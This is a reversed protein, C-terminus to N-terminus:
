RVIFNVYLSGSCTSASTCTTNYSTRTNGASYYFSNNPIASTTDGYGNTASTKIFQGATGAIAKVWGSGVTTVITNPATTSTSGDTAVVLGYLKQSATAAPAMAGNTGSSDVIMGLEVATSAPVAEKLTSTFTRVDYINDIKGATVSEGQIDALCLVPATISFTPMSSTPAAVGATNTFAPQGNAGTLCVHGWRNATTLNTNNTTASNTSLTTASVNVRRGGSYAVCAEISVTTNSAWSVKCPGSVGGVVLSPLDYANAGTSPVIGFSLLGLTDPNSIDSWSGNICARISGMTTNYYMAGQNITTSCTGSDTALNSSDLQLNMQTANTTGSGIQTNGGLIIGGGNPNVTFVDTGGNQIAFRGNTSCSTVCQLNILVNPDTTTDQATFQLNKGDALTITAPSSSNNYTDQLNVTIGASCNGFALTGTGSSDKLCDGASGKDQPLVLNWSSSPNSNSAKLTVTNGGASNRFLISGTASNSSGLSLTNSGQIDLTGGMTTAVGSHGITITGTTGTATGVDLVLGGSNSTSGTANGSRITLVSSNTSAGSQDQSQLQTLIGTGTINFHGVQATGPSSGQLQITSAASASYGSCTVATTCIDVVAGGIVAKLSNTDSRYFLGGNKAALGTSPNATSSDLVLLTTATDSGTSDGVKLINDTTNATFLTQASGASQIRFAATSDESNRFSYQATESSRKMYFGDFYFTGTTASARVSASVRVYSTGAPVTASIKRLIYSTGPLTAYNTTSSIVAKDKDFWTIQVGASGNAGASNKVYGELQIDEGPKVEYYNGAYIDLNTANPSVQMSYKGNYANASDNVISAQAPGFWGEEGGSISGGTEFNPNVIDNGPSRITNSIVYENSSNINFLYNGTANLVRFASAADSTGQITVRGTNSVGFLVTGLGSMSSGRINLIDNGITTDADQIDITGRVTDLKIEPTTSPNTGNAYTAQLTTANSAGGPTWASGNWIMTATTNQRMAVNVTNAGSNTTLVFDQSGSATTIYLIRGATTNTPLPLTITIDSTSANVIVTGNSDVNSQAITCNAACVANTAATYASASINVLGKAGTGIGAGGALILAGGNTNGVTADGGQVTLAGGAVGSASSATGSVKFNNPAAAVAGNGLYLGNATDFTGRTIGNTKLSVDAASQISAAGGASFALTSSTLAATGGIRYQTSSNIDGTVDLAYGSSATNGIGINAVGGNNKANLVNVGAGQLIITSASNKIHIQDNTGEWSFGAIETENPSFVGLTPQHAGTRADLLSLARATSVSDSALGMAMVQSFAGVQFIPVNIASRVSSGVPTIFIDADATSGLELKLAGKIHLGAGALVPLSNSGLGIGVRKNVTDVTFVNTGTQSKVNLATTSNVTQQLSLDGNSNVALLPTAVGNAKVQLIDATQSATGQIIAAINSAGGSQIAINATQVSTTNQIFQDSTLGGLRQSNLSFPTSSLRKMPIMEGDPSCASFPTCTANTSAINMSLWLTDQNWDVSAGFPTVSGLQVSMYGNKVVVGQSSVNLHNETWKLTGSPSGTTDGVSQGDGDQYIKFQINYNGDPVTAGQANLLRGQFNMQQSVGPAAQVPPTSIVFLACAAMVGVLIVSATFKRSVSLVKVYMKQRRYGNFIFGLETECVHKKDARLM